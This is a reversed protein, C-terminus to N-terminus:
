IINSNKRKEDPSNAPLKGYKADLRKMLEENEDEDCEEDETDEEEEELDDEDDDEEEEESIEEDVEEDYENEDEYEVPKVLSEGEPGLTNSYTSRLETYREKVTRPEIEQQDSLEEEESLDLYLFTSM